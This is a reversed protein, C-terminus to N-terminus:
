PQTYNKYAEYFNAKARHTGTFTKKLEETVSYTEKSYPLNKRLNPYTADIYDILWSMCAYLKNQLVSYEKVSEEDPFDDGRNYQQIEKEYGLCDSFEKKTSEKGKLDQIAVMMDQAMRFDSHKMGAWRQRVANYDIIRQKAKRGAASASPYLVLTDRGSFLSEIVMQLENATLRAIRVTVSRDGDKLLVSKKDPALVYTGSQAIAGDESVTFKGASSFDYEQSKVQYQSIKGHILRAATQWRKAITVQGSSCSALAMIAGMMMGSKM